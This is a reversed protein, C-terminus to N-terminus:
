YKIIYYVYANKPRTENGGTNATSASTFNYDTGGTVKLHGSPSVYVAYFYNSGHSHSSFIDNQITGVQNGTNGGPKSAIRTTRDQDKNSTGETPSNDVGRLFQGRLDPLNFTSSNDGYGWSNGIATYLDAYTIRSVAKGDCLLWGEPITPGAYAMVSGVPALFGTIDKVRGGVHLQATASDIAIGVNGSNTLSFKAPASRDMYLAFLIDTTANINSVGDAYPNTNNCGVTINCGAPPTLQFTYVNGSMLSVYGNASSLVGSSLDLTQLSLTSTVPCTKYGLYQTSNGQGAYIYVTVTNNCSAAVPVAIQRLKGSETAKFSQWYGQNTAGSCSTYSNGLLSFSQHIATDVIKLNGHITLDQINSIDVSNGNSISLMSGSLGLSQIENTHSTDVTPKNHVNDWKISDRILIRAIPDRELPAFVMVTDIINGDMYVIMQRSANSDDFLNAPFSIVTSYLGNVVNVNAPLSSWNLPPGILFQVSHQGSIPLGNSYIKGQFNAQQGFSLYNAVLLLTFLLGGKM